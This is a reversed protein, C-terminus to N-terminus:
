DGLCAETTMARMKSLFSEENPGRLRGGDDEWTRIAKWEARVLERRRGPVAAVTRKRMPANSRQSNWACFERRRDQNTIVESQQYM